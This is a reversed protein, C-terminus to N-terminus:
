APVMRVRVGNAVTCTISIRENWDDVDLTEIGRFAQALRFITYSVETLAQQEAAATLKIGLFCATQSKRGICVRPGGGFPLFAWRPRLKEWREPVFEDADGGFLDKRRHTVHYHYAVVQGKRVYIKSLGDPGGGV